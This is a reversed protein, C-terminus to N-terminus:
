VRGQRKEENENGDEETDSDNKVTEVKPTNNNNTLIHGPPNGPMSNNTETCHNVGPYETYQDERTINTEVYEEELIDVETIDYEDEPTAVGQIEEQELTAM